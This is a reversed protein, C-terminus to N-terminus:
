SIKSFWPVKKKNSSSTKLKKVILKGDGAVSFLESKRYFLKEPYSIFYQNTLPLVFLKGEYQEIVDAKDDKSLILSKTINNKLDIHKLTDYIPTKTFFITDNNIKWLGNTWNASLHIHHSFKFTSDSMIEISSGFNDVFKGIIQNQAILCSPISFLYYLLLRRM